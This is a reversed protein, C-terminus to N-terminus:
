KGDSLGELFMMLEAKQSEDMYSVKVCRKLTELIETKNM